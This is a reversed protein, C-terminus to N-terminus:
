LFLIEKSQSNLLFERVKREVVIFTLIQTKIVFLCQFVTTKFNLKYGIFM